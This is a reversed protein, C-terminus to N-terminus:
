PTSARNRHCAGAAAMAYDVVITAADLRLLSRMPREFGAGDALEISTRMDIAVALCERTRTGRARSWRTTIM